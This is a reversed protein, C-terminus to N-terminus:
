AAVEKLVGSREFFRVWGMPPEAEGKKTLSPSKEKVADLFDGLSKGDYQQLMNYWAERAGRYKMGGKVALIKPAAKSAAGAKSGGGEGDKAMNTKERKRKLSAKMNIEQRNVLLSVCWDARVNNDRLPIAM